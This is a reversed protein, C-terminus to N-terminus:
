ETPRDDAITLMSRLVERDIRLDVPDVHGDLYGAIVVDSHQTDTKENIALVEDITIDHPSMWHVAKEHPVDIIAATNSHGGPIANLSRGVSGDFVCEPGVVALYTTLHEDEHQSSPCLYEDMVVDRAKANAPDDWPKTYDILKHTTDGQMYPLILARWSHLRNGQADVTYAPPLTGHEDHYNLLALLIGKTNNLCHNRNAARSGGPTWRIFPLGFVLILVVVVLSLIVVGSISSQQAAPRPETETSRYPNDSM